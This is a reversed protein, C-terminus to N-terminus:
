GFPLGALDRGLQRDGEWIVILDRRGAILRQEAAGDLLVERPGILIKGAFQREPDCRLTGVPSKRPLM